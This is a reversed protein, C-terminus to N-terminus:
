IQYGSRNYLLVIIGVVVEVVSANQEKDGHALRREREDLREDGEDISATDSAQVETERRPVQAVRKRRMKKDIPSQM